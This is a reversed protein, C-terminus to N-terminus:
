PKRGYVQFVEKMMLEIYFDFCSKFLEEKSRFYQYVTGKGIGAFDSIDQISTKSYGSKSFVKLAASIILVKKEEKDMNDKKKVSRDTM